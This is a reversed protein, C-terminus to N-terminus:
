DYTTKANIAINYTCSIGLGNIIADEIFIDSTPYEEWKENVIKLDGFSYPNTIYDAYVNKVLINDTAEISITGNDTLILPISHRWNNDANLKVTYESKGYSYLVNYDGSGGSISIVLTYSTEGPTLSIINGNSITKGGLTATIAWKGVGSGSGGGGGVSGHEYVFKLNRKLKTVDDEINEIVTNLNSGANRGTTVIDNDTIINTKGNLKM